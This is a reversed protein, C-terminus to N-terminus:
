LSALLAVREFGKVTGTYTLNLHELVESACWKGPPHRSLQEATLGDIIAAIEDQLRRLRPDV